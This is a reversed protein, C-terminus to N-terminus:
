ALYKPIENPTIRRIKMTNQPQEIENWGPILTFGAEFNFKEKIIEINKPLAEIRGYPYSIIKIKNQNFQQLYLETKGIDNLLEDNSFSSMPHHTYGHNGIMHGEDILSQIQDISLYKTSCFEKEDFDLKKGLEYSARDALEPPLIFNVFYKFMAVDENDHIHMKKANNKLEESIQYQNYKEPLLEFLLKQLKKPKNFARLHHMRNVFLAKQELSPQASIFFIGSINFDSLVDAADIQDSLGDDFTISVFKSKEDVNNPHKLLQLTEQAGILDFRNKLEKLQKSFEKKLSQISAQIHEEM